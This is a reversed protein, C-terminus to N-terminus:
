SRRVQQASDQAQDRVEGAAQQGDEKVTQVADSATERVSAVADQAPERLNEGAERAVDAVQQKVPEAADKVKAAAQQEARSAPIMGGVLLGVGFAILGAALPNGQTRARARGPVSGVRDGLDSGHDAVGMVKERLDDKLGVASEKVGEVKRRAINKPNAQDTLEDVDRSLEARTREIEARVVAPDQSM